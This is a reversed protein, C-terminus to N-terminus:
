SMCLFSLRSEQLEDRKHAIFLQKSLAYIAYENRVISCVCTEAIRTRVATETIKNGEYVLFGNTQLNTKSTFSLFYYMNLDIREYM